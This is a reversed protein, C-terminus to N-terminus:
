SSRTTKARRTQKRVPTAPASRLFLRLDRLMELLDARLTRLQSRRIAGDAEAQRLSTRLDHILRIRQEYEDESLPEVRELLELRLDHIRSELTQGAPSSGPESVADGSPQEPGGVSEAPGHGGSQEAAAPQNRRSILRTIEAVLALALSLGFTWWVWDLHEMWQPRRDQSILVAGAHWAFHGKEGDDLENDINIKGRLRNRLNQALWYATTVSMVRNCVLVKRASITDLQMPCFNKGPAFSERPITDPYLYGNKVVLADAYKVGLLYCKGDNAVDRVFTSERPGMSFAVDIFGRNLAVRAEDWDAIGHTDLKGVGLNYHRLVIEACQRTGSRAPGLYVNQNPVERLLPAIHAFTRPEEPDLGSGEVARRYFDRTCVIHLYSRQLDMLKQVNGGWLDSSGAADSQFGDYAFAVDQGETDRAVRQVNEAFGDTYEPRLVYKRGVGLRHDAAEEALEKTISAVTGGRTASLMRVEVRSLDQYFSFLVIALALIGSLRVFWGTWRKIVPWLMRGAQIILEAIRDAGSM